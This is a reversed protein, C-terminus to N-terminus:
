KKPASMYFGGGISDYVGGKFVMTISRDVQTETIMTSASESQGGGFLVRLDGGDPNKLRFRTPGFPDPGLMLNIGSVEEKLSEFAGM